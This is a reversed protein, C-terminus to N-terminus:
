SGRDVSEHASRMTVVVRLTRPSEQQRRTEDICTLHRDYLAQLSEDPLARLWALRKLADLQRWEHLQCDDPNGGREPCGAGLDCLFAILRARELATDTDTM